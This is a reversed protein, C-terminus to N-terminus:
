VHEIFCVSYEDEITNYNELMQKLEIMHLLNTLVQM